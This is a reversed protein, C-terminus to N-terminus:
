WLDCLRIYVLAEHDCGKNTFKWSDWLKAFVTQRTNLTGRWGKCGLYAGKSCSDIDLVFHSKINRERPSRHTTPSSTSPPRLHRRPLPTNPNPIVPARSMNADSNRVRIEVGYEPHRGVDRACLYSFYCLTRLIPPDLCDCPIPRAMYLIGLSQLRLFVFEDCTSITGYEVRDGYWTVTHRSLWLVDTISEMGIELVKNNARCMRYPFTGRRVDEIEASTVKWWLKIEIVGTPRGQHTWFSDPTRCHVNARQFQERKRYRQMNTAQMSLQPM